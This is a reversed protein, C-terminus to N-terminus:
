GPGNTEQGDGGASDAETAGVSGGKSQLGLMAEKLRKTSESSSIWGHRETRIVGEVSEVLFDINKTALQEVEPLAEWWLTITNLGDIATSYRDMKKETGSFDSWAVVAASLTSLVGVWLPVGLFALVAGMLSGLMTLMQTMVRRQSYKPLRQKYFELEPVLRFRIFKKPTLPSHHNDKEEALAQKWTAVEKLLGHHRVDSISLGLHQAAIKHKHIEMARAWNNGMSLLKTQQKKVDQKRKENDKALSKKNIETTLMQDINIGLTQLVDKETVGKALAEERLESLKIANEMARVEKKQASYGMNTLHEDQQLVHFKSIGKDRIKKKLRGVKVAHRLVGKTKCETCIDFGCQYCGYVPFSKGISASCVNCDIESKKFKYLCLLHGLPCEFNNKKSVERPHRFLKLKIISKSVDLESGVDLCLAHGIVNQMLKAIQIQVKEDTSMSDPNLEFDTLKCDPHVLANALKEAGKETIKNNSLNIGTIKNSPHELADVICQVDKDGIKCHSLDLIKISCTSDFSVM